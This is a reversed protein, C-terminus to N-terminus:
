QQALVLILGFVLIAAFGAVIELVERDIRTSRGLIKLHM